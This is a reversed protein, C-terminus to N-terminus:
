LGHSPCFQWKGNLPLRYHIVFDTRLIDLDTRARIRPESNAHIYGFNTKREHMEADSHVAMGGLVAQAKAM